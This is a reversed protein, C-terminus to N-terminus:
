QTVLHRQEIERKVGVIMENTVAKLSELLEISSQGQVRADMSGKGVRHLVDFHEALGMAFEHTLDVMDGMNAATLNVMQKLKAILELPSAEELRVLPDGAAIKKLAEFVESLGIAMEISTAELERDRKELQQRAESFQRALLACSAKMSERDMNTKFVQCSLCLEVKSLFNDQVDNRCRTGDILWCCLKESDYAPCDIEQCDFLDKCKIKETM